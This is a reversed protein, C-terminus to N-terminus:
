YKIISRQGQAYVFRFWDVIGSASYEATVNDGKKAPCITSAVGSAPIQAMPRLGNSQNYFLVYQQSNAEKTLVYWGNGPAVYSSGSINLTLDTYNSSPM